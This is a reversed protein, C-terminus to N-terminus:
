FKIFKLNANFTGGLGAALTAGDAATVGDTQMLGTLLPDSKLVGGFVIVGQKPLSDATGTNVGIRIFGEVDDVSTAKVYRKTATDMKVGTGAPLAGLGPTLTGGKQLLGVTSYLIETPAVVEERAYGPAYIVDGEYSAM